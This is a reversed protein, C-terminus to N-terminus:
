DGDDADDARGLGGPIGRSRRHSGRCRLLPHVLVEQRHRLRQLSEVVRVGEGVVCGPSGRRGREWCCLRAGRELRQARWVRVLVVRKRLASLSDGM